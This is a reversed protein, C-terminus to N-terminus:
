IMAEWLTNGFKIAAFLSVINPKSSLLHRSRDRCNKEKPDRHSRVFKFISIIPLQIRFNTFECPSTMFRTNNLASDVKGGIFGLICGFLTLLTTKIGEIYIVPM